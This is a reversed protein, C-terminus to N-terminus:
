GPGIQRCNMVFANAAKFSSLFLYRNPVAFNGFSDLAGGDAGGDDTGGFDGLGDGDQRGAFQGLLLGLGLPAGVLGGNGTGLVGGTVTWGGNVMALGHAPERAMGTPT